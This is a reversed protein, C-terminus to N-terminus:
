MTKLLPKVTANKWAKEFESKLKQPVEKHPIKNEPQAKISEILGFLSRGNMKHIEPKEDGCNSIQLDKCFVKEAEAYNEQRYYAAGLSERVPYYWDPPENYNLGDELAVAETWINIIPQDRKINEAFLGSDLKLASYKEVRNKVKEIFDNRIDSPLAELTRAILVLNAIRFLDSANNNGYQLEPPAQGVKKWFKELKALASEITVPPTTALYKLVQGYSQMANTFHLDRRTFFEFLAEECRIKSLFDWANFRIATWIPVTFFYDDKTQVLKQNYLPNYDDVSYKKINKFLEQAAALAESERGQISLSDTLFHLNHSLYHLPYRATEPTQRIYARDVYLAKYNAETAKAYEGIRQYVHSPMHQIHGAAPALESIRNASYLAVEPCPSEETAHIFYHNAGLHNEGIHKPKRTLVEKLVPLAKEIEPTPQGKRWGQWPCLNTGMYNSDLPPSKELLNDFLEKIKSTLDGQTWWKWPNINMLAAAYLTAADNDKPQAEQLEKMADAYAKADVCVYKGKENVYVEDGQADICKLKSKADYDPRDVKDEANAPVPEKSTHKYRKALAEVYNKELQNQTRNDTTSQSLFHKEPENNGQFGEVTNSLEVRQNEARKKALKVAEDALNLCEDTAGTNIDPGAAMAIGWYPMAAKPDDKAAQNFSHIAEPHNFAYLLTMGQNLYDQADPVNSGQMMIPYKHNGLGSFLPETYGPPLPKICDKIYIDLSSAQANGSHIALVLAIVFGAILYKIVSFGVLQFIKIMEKSSNFNFIKTRRYM